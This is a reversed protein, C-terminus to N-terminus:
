CVTLGCYKTVGTQNSYSVFNAKLVKVATGNIVLMTRWIAADIMSYV